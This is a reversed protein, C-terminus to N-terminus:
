NFIQPNLVSRLSVPRGFRNGSLLVVRNGNSTEDRFQIQLSIEPKM